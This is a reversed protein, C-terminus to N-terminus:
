WTIGASSLNGNVWGTTAHLEREFDQACLSMSAIIAQKIVPLLAAGAGEPLGLFGEAIRAISDAVLDFANDQTMAWGYAMMRAQFIGEATRIMRGANEPGGALGSFDPVFAKVLLGPIAGSRNYASQTLTNGIAPDLGRVLFDVGTEVMQHCINLLVADPLYLGIEPSELVPKLMTALVRAKAMVYGEGRGLTMGSIHATSDMGWTNNHSVFGYAFAKEPGSLANDWVNLFHEQAPDHLYATFAQAVPTFDFNFLDIANAGYIRNAMVEADAKGQMKQLHAEIYAHTAAEWSFAASPMLTVMLCMCFFTFVIRKLTTATM